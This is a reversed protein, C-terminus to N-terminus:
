EKPKASKIAQRIAKQALPKIQLFAPRLFPRKKIRGDKSGFELVAGYDVGEKSKATSVVWTVTKGEDTLVKIGRRLGGEWNAPAEGPASAVHKSPRKDNNTYTRGSKPGITIALRAQSMISNAALQLASFIQRRVHEPYVALRDKIGQVGQVDVILSM